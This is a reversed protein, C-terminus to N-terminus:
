VALDKGQYQRLSKNKLNLLCTIVIVGVGGIVVTAPAGIFKALFGAEIEGLNPGGQVFMRMISAMRGRLNDPTVMQRITNRIITSIMDGFGVGILFILSLPLVKSFGFAITFIGYLIVSGIIAQGQHELKHHLAAILVGALVGGIAPASYLFGLGQPGVHLIDKAFVPMLITAEGFFTAVFDLIMTTYLIPTSLVFKIGDSIAALNFEIEERKHKQM